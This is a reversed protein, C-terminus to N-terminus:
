IGLSILEKIRERYVIRASTKAFLRDRGAGKLRIYLELADSISSHVENSSVDIAGSFKLGLEQSQFRELRLSEFYRDLRDCLALASKQAKAISRLQELRLVCLYIALASTKNSNLRLSVTRAITITLSTTSLGWWGHM